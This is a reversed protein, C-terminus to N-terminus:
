NIKTLKGNLTLIGGATVTTTMGHIETILGGRVTIHSANLEIGTPDIVISSEGVKLTISTGAEILLTKGVSLHDTEVITVARNAGVKKQENNGVEAKRDHGVVHEQDNGVHHTEKFRVRTNMDRNAHVFFEEKGGADELRIENADPAGTDLPRANPYPGPQGYTKSRFVTRTKNAPLNYIPMNAKNFLRGKIYPKDPDQNEFGIRVEEGMRPIDINGLGGNQDVRMWCSAKEGPTGSRDWHFRAKVRGFEDTYIKEGAPGSVTASDAHAVPKPTALPARYPTDAPIAELRVNFVMEDNRQGSRYSEAAISHYASTILYRGNMRAVPHQEVTMLFGCSLGGAQSTGAMQRRHARLGELVTQGREAGTKEQEGRGTKEQRYRGPYLFVEHQDRPHAGAAAHDAMLAKEPSEFDFDHTTVKTEGGTSVRETWTQLAYKQDGFRQTSDTAFVSVTTPKYQLKAPSGDVHAAPSECLVMVHKAAEHRFFYYIGEEEMLRSIFAFDSEKYQVCYTRRVRSKSLKAYDVDSIGAADLVKKIIDIVTLDQFITMARNQALFYTWPEITLRYHHGTPTERLYDGAVTLGHFYRLVEEDELLSLAAPKGLHPQLDLELPAVIDAVITFPRSLREAAEIRELVVQDDGVDISM